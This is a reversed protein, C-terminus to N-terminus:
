YAIIGELTGSWPWPATVDLCPNTPSPECVEVPLFQPVAVFTVQASGTAGVFRGTGGVVTVEYPIDGDANDAALFLQDGNAAEMTTEQSVFGGTAGIACQAWTAQVVGIDSATGSSNTLVLPGAPEEGCRAMHAPTGFEFAIEGVLDATFRKAVTFMLEYSPGAAGTLSGGSYATAQLTYTGPGLTMPLYNGVPWDGGAAYPAFNERPQGDLRFRVPQKDSDLVAFGVSGVTGPATEVRINFQPTAGLDVVAGDVLPGVDQDTKADVLVMGTVIPQTSLTGTFNFQALGDPLGFLAEGGPIDGAGDLAGSGTADLFRGTGEVVTWTAEMTFGEPPGDPPGVLQSSMKQAIILTDGKAFTFTITGDSLASAPETGSRTCQTLSYDVTGFPSLHGSGASPFRWESGPPCDPASFDPPGHQGMVTGEIQVEGVAAAPAPFALVLLTVAVFIRVIRVM